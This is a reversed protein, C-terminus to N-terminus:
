VIEDMAYDDWERIGLAIELEVPTLVPQKYRATDDITIRPCATNVFADLGRFPLLVDPNIERLAIFYGSRGKEELMGRVKKALGLRRQGQKEGILIGFSQADQARTIAAFRRRLIPESVDSMDRLEGREMDLAFVKKGTSLAVGLPHFNGTGVFLFGGVDDAVDKATSFSCGLVQGPYAIRGLASGVAVSRGSEEIVKKIEDLLHVHQITTVLGVRRPLQDLNEKLLPLPDRPIKVAIYHVPLRANKFIRSHGFHFLADCGLGLAEFDALDCAGYCPDGLIIVECDVDLALRNSIDVGSDKLGEPLQLAVCTYGEKKIIGAVGALDLDFM